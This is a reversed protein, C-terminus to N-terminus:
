MGELKKNVEEFEETMQLRYYITKLTELTAREDPNLEFAKEMPEIAKKLEADAAKKAANYEDLDEKTNAVDYLEVANNFHLAGINFWSNFFEPDVKLSEKYAEM